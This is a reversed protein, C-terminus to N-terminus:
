KPELADGLFMRILTSWHVFFKLWRADQLPLPGIASALETIRAPTASTMSLIIIHTNILYYLDTLWFDPAPSPSYNNEWPDIKSQLISSIIREQLIKSRKAKRPKFNFVAQEGFFKSEKLCLNEKNNILVETKILAPLKFGEPNKRSQIITSKNGSSRKSQRSPFFM